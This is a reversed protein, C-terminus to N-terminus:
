IEAHNKGVVEDVTRGAGAHDKQNQVAHAPKRMWGMALGLEMVEEQAIIGLM